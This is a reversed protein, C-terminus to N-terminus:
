QDVGAVSSLLRRLGPNVRALVTDGRAKVMSAYRIFQITEGLGQEDWLLITKGQLSSGDWTPQSYRESPRKLGNAQWRWVYQRFGRPLDGNLLWLLSRNWHADADLFALDTEEDDEVYCNHQVDRFFLVRLLRRRCGDM